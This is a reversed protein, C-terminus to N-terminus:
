SHCTHRASIPRLRAQRARPFQAALHTRGTNADLCRYLDNEEAFDREALILRNGSISLGALSGNM